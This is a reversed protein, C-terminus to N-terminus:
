DNRRQDRASDGHCRKWYENYRFCESCCRDECENHVKGFDGDEIKELDHLSPVRRLMIPKRFSTVFTFPECREAVGRKPWEDPAPEQGTSSKRKGTPILRNRGLNVPTARWLIAFSTAPCLSLAAVSLHLCRCNASSWDLVRPFEVIEYWAFFLALAAFLLAFHLWRRRPHCIEARDVSSNSEDTKM